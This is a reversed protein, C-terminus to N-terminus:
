TETNSPKTYEVTVYLKYYTGGREGLWAYISGLPHSSDKTVYAIMCKKTLASKINSVSNSSLNLYVDHECINLPKFTASNYNSIANISIIEEFEMNMDFFQM